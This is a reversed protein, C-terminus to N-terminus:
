VRPITSSTDRRGTAGRVTACRDCHQQNTNKFGCKLCQWEGDRARDKEREREREREREPLGSLSETRTPRLRARDVPELTPRARNLKQLSPQTMMAGASFARELSPFGMSGAPQRRAGSYSM